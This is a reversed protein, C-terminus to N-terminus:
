ERALCVRVDEVWQDRYYHKKKTNSEALVCVVTFKGLDDGWELTAQTSGAEARNFQTAPVEGNEKAVARDSYYWWEAYCWYDSSVYEDQMKRIEYRVKAGPTVTQDEPSALLKFRTDTKEDGM